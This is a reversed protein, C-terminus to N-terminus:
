DYPYFLGGAYAHARSTLRAAQKLALQLYRSDAPLRYSDLLIMGYQAQEAPHNHLPGGLNVMRVGTADVTGDGLPAPGRQADPELDAPLTRLEFDHRLFGTLPLDATVRVASATPAPRLLPSPRATSRGPLGQPPLALPDLGGPDADNVTGPNAGP